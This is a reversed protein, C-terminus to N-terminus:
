REKFFLYRFGNQRNPRKINTNRGKQSEEEVGAGACSLVVRTTKERCVKRPIELCM